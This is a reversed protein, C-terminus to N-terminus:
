NVLEGCVLKLRFSLQHYNHLVINIRNWSPLKAVSVCSFPIYAPEMDVNCETINTGEFTYPTGRNRQWSYLISFRFGNFQSFSPFENAPDSMKNQINWKYKLIQSCNTLSFIFATEPEFHRRHLAWPTSGIRSLSLMGFSSLPFIELPQPIRTLLELNYFVNLRRCLSEWRLFWQLGPQPQARSLSLLKPLSLLFNVDNQKHSKWILSPSINHRFQKLIIRANGLSLWFPAFDVISISTTGSVSASGFPPFPADIGFPVSVSFFFSAPLELFYTIIDRMCSQSITSMEINELFSLFRLFTEFVWSHLINNSCSTWHVWNFQLSNKSFLITILSWTFLQWAFTGMVFPRSPFEIRDSVNPGLTCGLVSYTHSIFSPFADQMSSSFLAASEVIKSTELHNSSGVWITFEVFPLKNATNQLSNRSKWSERGM